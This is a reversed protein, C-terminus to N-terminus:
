QPENITYLLNLSAIMRSYVDMCQKGFFGEMEYKLAPFTPIKMNLKCKYVFYKVFQKWLLDTERLKKNEHMVGLLFSNEGILDGGAEMWNQGMIWKFCKQILEQVPDCDWFIHQVTERERMDLYYQYEPRNEAVGRHLLERKGILTCFTCQPRYEGM